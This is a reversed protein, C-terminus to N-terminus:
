AFVQAVPLTFGSIVDEGSLTEGARLVLPSREDYRYVTITRTTPSVLWVLRVGDELYRQVKSVVEDYGDNKSIIEVCLDPVLVFPKDEWDPNDAMYQALREKLFLMIDPVRSGSVWNSAYVLVYPTEYYVEGLDNAEVYRDLPKFLNRNRRGHGALVPSMEVIEGNILEFPSEHFREIFAELTMGKLQEAPANM